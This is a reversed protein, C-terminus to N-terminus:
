ELDQSRVVASLQQFEPIWRGQSCCRPQPHKIQFRGVANSKINKNALMAGSYPEWRSLNIHLDEDRTGALDIFHLLLLQNRLLALSALVLSKLRPECHTEEDRAQGKLRLHETNLLRFSPRNTYCVTQIAFSLTTHCPDSRM